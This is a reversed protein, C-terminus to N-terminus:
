SSTVLTDQAAEGKLEAFVQHGGCCEFGKEKSCIFSLSGFLFSKSCM